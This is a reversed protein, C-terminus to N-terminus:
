GVPTPARFGAPSRAISGCLRARRESRARRLTGSILEAAKQVTEIGRDFRTLANRRSGIPRKTSWAAALQEPEHPGTKARKQACIDRSQQTLRGDLGARCTSHGARCAPKGGLLRTAPRAHNRPTHVLSMCSSPTRAPPVQRRWPAAHVPRSIPVFPM